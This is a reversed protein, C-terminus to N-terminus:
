FQLVHYWFESPKRKVGGNSTLVKDDDHVILLRNNPLISVAEAKHAFSIPTGSADYVPELSPARGASLKSQEVQDLSLRWLYAGLSKGQELDAEPNVEGEKQSLPQADQELGKEFSTLVFLSHDTANYALSSIGLNRGPVLKDSSIDVLSRPAETILFDQETLQYKAM